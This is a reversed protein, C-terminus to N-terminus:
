MVQMARAGSQAASSSTRKSCTTGDSASLKLRYSLMLFEQIATYLVVLCCCCCCCPKSAPEARRCAEASSALLLLLLLLFPM